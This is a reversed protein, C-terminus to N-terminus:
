GLRAAIAALLDAPEAMRGPGVDGEALYGSGPAVLQVGDAVLRAVNAIVRPHRWMRQNMAPAVLTPCPAGLWTTSVLDDAIGNAMKGIVDATAPAVVFLQAHETANLHAAPADGDTWTDSTLVRRHTLAAFSLPRVFREAMPTLLVDVEHGAQVLKSTLDVAKYAAISGCVGLVIRAM